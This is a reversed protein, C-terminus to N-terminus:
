QDHHTSKQIAVQRDEQELSRTLYELDDERIFFNRAVKDAQLLGKGSLAIASGKKEIFGSESLIEVLGPHIQPISIGFSQEVENLYLAEGRAFSQVLFDHYQDILDLQITSELRARNDKSWDQMYDKINHPNMSRSVKSHASYLSVAGAGLGLVKSPDSLTPFNSSSLSFLGHLHHKYGACSLAEGFAEKFRKRRVRQDKHNTRKNMHVRLSRTLPLLQNRRRPSTAKIVAPRLDLLSRIDDRFALPSQLKYGTSVSVGYSEQRKNAIMRGVTGLRTATLALSSKRHSSTSCGHTRVFFHIGSWGQLQDLLSEDLDQIDARLVLHCNNEILPVHAVLLELFQEVVEPKALWSSGGGISISSFKVDSWRPDQLRSLLERKIAWLYQDWPPQRHLFRSAGRSERHPFRIYIRNGNEKTM